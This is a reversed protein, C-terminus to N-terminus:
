NVTTGNKKIKTFKDRDLSYAFLNDDSATLKLTEKGPQEEQGYTVTVTDNGYTNKGTVVAVITFNKNCINVFYTITFISIM